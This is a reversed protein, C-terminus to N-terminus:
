APNDVMVLAGANTRVQYAVTPATVVLDLGFERELREQAIEMHLLGLFGARFGFGLAQSTEPECILSADNLRLKEIADRLAGYQNAETPYLGAFVMPKLEKFGALPESAPHEADTVTDGVRMEAVAKIGGVLFGVEGPGLTEIPREHPTFYGLRM